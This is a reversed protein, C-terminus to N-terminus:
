DECWPLFIFHLLALLKRTDHADCDNNLIENFKEKVQAM